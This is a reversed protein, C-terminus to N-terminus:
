WLLTVHGIFEKREGSTEPRIIVKWVYTDQQVKKGNFTGDWGADEHVSEFILQGWRNFILLQFESPNVGSVSAKFVDNIGDGDPTFANPVYLFLEPKVNVQKCVTDSCTYVNTAVLCVPYSGENQDPFTFQPHVQESSGLGAFDWQYFDGGLTKNIFNVRTDSLTIDDDFIFDADPVPRDCVMSYNTADATCGQPSTVTLSVDYCSIDTFTHAVTNCGTVSNGDGFDWECNNGVLAPDTTNTFIVTHPSCGEPEDVTFQVDPNPNATVFFSAQAECGNADTVTVIHEQNNIATDPIFNQSPGNGLEDWSYSYGPTGGSAEATWSVSDGVCATTSEGGIQLQSPSEIVFSGQTQCGNQDVVIVNYTGSCLDEIINSQYPDGNVIYGFPEADGSAEIIASGDCSSNCLTSETIINDITVGPTDGITFDETVVCGESDTITVTYDGSPVGDISNGQQNFNDGFWEITHNPTGGTIDTVQAEGNPQECTADEFTLTFDMADPEEITEQSNTSCGNADIITVQYTGPCVDTAQFETPQAIGDQWDYAFPSTGGSSQTTISGDCAGNCTVDSSSTSMVLEPSYTVETVPGIDWCNQNLIFPGGPTYHYLTIPTIYLTNTGLNAEGGLQNLLSNPDNVDYLDDEAEVITVFCPDDNPFVGPTPPCSYILYLLAPQYPYGGLDGEDDPFSYDGNSEIAIEDGYCLEYETQSDGTMTVTTTGADAACGCNITTQFGCDPFNDFYYDIVYPSVAPDLGDVSWNQPSADPMPIVFDETNTGDTVSIVLNANEPPNEFEITGQVEGDGLTCEVEFFTIPSPATIAANGECPEDADTFWATIECEEGDQPLEDFAYDVPSSFPPDFTVQQGFCNQIILQGTEPANNFSVTGEVDYQLFPDTYCDVIDANISINCFDGECDPHSAPLVTVSLTTDHECGFDDMVSYSYTFTEDTDPPFPGATATNNGTATIEPGTWEESVIDNEFSWAFLDPNFNLGFGYCYGNDQTQNDCIRLKWVGNLPCGLLGDLPQESTYSGAPLSFNNGQGTAEDEFTGYEPNDVPWTYEYGVGPDNGFGPEGLNSSLTNLFIQQENHLHVQQGNPCIISIDLDGLYSHELIAWIDILDNMDDLTAGPEFIEYEIQPEYCVGTGDPLFTTDLVPEPPDDVWETTNYIGTFDVTEDYCIVEETATTGTFVPPLAVQVFVGIMNSSICDNNDTVTLKIRYGGPEDFTHSASQGTATTGDGFDWEFESTANSQTYNTGNQPFIGEGEFQVEDGPCINIFDGDIAPTSSSLGANVTQCPYACSIIATWGASTNALFGGESIFQFTLCGSANNNTARVITGEISFDNNYTGLQPSNADPGDYIILNSGANFLGGADVDFETFDFVIHSGGSGDSCFTITYDEGGSFDNNPGGSDYFTGSCTNITTGDTTNDLLYDQSWITSIPLLISLITFLITHKIFSTM